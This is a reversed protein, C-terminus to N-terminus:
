RVVRCVTQDAVHESYRADRYRGPEVFVTKGDAHLEIGSPALVAKKKLQRPLQFQRRRIQEVSQRRKVDCLGISRDFSPNRRWISM